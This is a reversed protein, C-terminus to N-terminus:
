TQPKNFRTCKCHGYPDSHRLWYSGVEVTRGCNHCLCKWRTENSHIRDNEVPEIVELFGFEQGTLDHTLQHQACGCSKTHGSRLSDGTVTIINGCECECVWTAKGSSTTGERYLVTLKDFRQKTLDIFTPSPKHRLCGCSRTGNKRTLATSSVVTTNGCKCECLWLPRGKKIDEVREVVHLLGFDKGALDLLKSM